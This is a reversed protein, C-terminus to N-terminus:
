FRNRNWSCKEEIIMNHFDAWFVWNTERKWFDSAKISFPSIDLSMSNVHPILYSLGVDKLIMNWIMIQIELNSNLNESWRNYFARNCIRETYNHSSRQCCGCNSIPRSFSKICIFPSKYQSLTNNHNCPTFKRPPALVFFDAM